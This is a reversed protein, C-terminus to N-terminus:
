HLQLIAAVAAICLGLRVRLILAGSANEIIGMEDKEVCWAVM